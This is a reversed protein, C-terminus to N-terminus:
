AHTASSPTDPPTSVIAVINARQQRVTAAVARPRSFWRPTIAPRSSSILLESHSEVTFAAAYDTKVWQFRHRCPRGNPQDFRRLLIAINRSPHNRPLPKPICGQYPLQVPRATVSHVWGLMYTSRVVDSSRAPKSRSKM